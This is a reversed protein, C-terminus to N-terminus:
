FDRFLVLFRGYDALVFAGFMVLGVDPIPYKVVVSIWSGVVLSPTKSYKLHGKLLV